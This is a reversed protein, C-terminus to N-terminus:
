RAEKLNLILNCFEKKKIALHIGILICHYFSIRRREAFSKIPFVTRAMQRLETVAGAVTLPKITQVHWQAIAQSSAYLCVGYTLLGAM